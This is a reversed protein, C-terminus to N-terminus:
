KTWLFTLADAPWGQLRNVAAGAGGADARVGLDQLPHM